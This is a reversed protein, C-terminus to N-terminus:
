SANQDQWETDQDRVFRIGNETDVFGLKKAARAWYPRGAGFSAVKTSILHAFQQKLENPM